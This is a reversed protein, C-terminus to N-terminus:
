RRGRRRKLEKRGPVPPRRREKWSGALRHSKYRRRGRTGGEKTRAELRGVGQKKDTAVSIDHVVPVVIEYRHFNFNTDAFIPPVVIILGMSNRRQRAILTTVRAPYVVTPSPTRPDVVFQQFAPERTIVRNYNTFRTVLPHPKIQLYYFISLKRKKTIRNKM